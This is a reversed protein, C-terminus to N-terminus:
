RIDLSLLVLLEVMASPSHSAGTLLFRAVVFCGMKFLNFNVFSRSTHVGM